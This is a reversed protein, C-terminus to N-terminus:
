PALCAEEYAARIAKTLPGPRGEGVRSGDIAVVPLVGAIANTVFVEDARIVDSLRQRVERTKLGLGSAMELVLSRTVGPLAGDAVRPTRLVGSQLAFINSSSGEAVWGLRNMLLAEDAGARRAEDRALLNLAYNVSKVRSLPSADDRRISSTRLAIGHEYMSPPYDTARRAQIFVDPPGEAAGASLTLRVRADEIGNREALTAVADRLQALELTLGLGLLRAGSALREYHRDLALVRGRRARFTEFLGLGVLMGAGGAPVKASESPLVEGNLYAWVTM